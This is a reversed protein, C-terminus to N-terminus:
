KNITRMGKKIIYATEKSNSVDKWKQCITRVWDPQSKSADNLWNAVSNQVYKSPDSMLPEILPLGIAPAKQLAEVKKTWVGIPRLVEAVFRRVNEDKSKTWTSLIGIASELDDALKEKTAFIAVERVGFHKDAAFPKILVALKKTSHNGTTVAWCAWCRVVDSAHNILTTAVAKNDIHKNFLKGIVRTNNNASIKKQSNVAEEFESYWEEKELKQLVTSLVKLQNTALWETLNATEIVGTNLLELVKPPIDEAKRAGKRELIDKAIKISM